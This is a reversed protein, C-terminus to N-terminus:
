KMLVMKKVETHSSTVIRYLYVGSGLASANFSIDYYHGAEAMGDFLRAVEQGLLNYVILTAHEAHEVSFKIMTSPNFPNPYSQLLQFKKPAVDGSVSLVVNVTIPQSYSVAGNLDVQRVRYIYNGSTVMNDVWSYHHQSLSTGAGAILGSVTQFVTSDQRHREVYFGYNNTESVTTWELKVGSTTTTATLSALQIPLAANTGLTFQGLTSVGSYSVTTDSLSDAFAVESSWTSDSTGPRQYLSYLTASASGDNTFSPPVTFTLSFDLSSAKGLTKKLRATQPKTRSSLPGSNFVDIVWYRDSLITSSGVPLSDPPTMIQTETIDVAGPFSTITTLQFTGLSLTGSTFSAASTSSGTGLPVTSIVWAPADQLTGNNGNATADYAVGGGGEDFRWYGLLGTENGHLRLHMSERIQQQTRAVNWVRVEDIQGQLPNAADQSYGIRIHTNWNFDSAAKTGSAMLIGDVYLREGGVSSGFVHAVHHWHGDAYNTGSTQLLETAYIRTHIDGGSLYIHRDHGGTGPDYVAFLGGAPNTTKFWLEHTIETEPEALPVDVCQTTGNLSLAKGPGVNAACTGRLTVSMTGKNPDNSTITLSGTLAGVTSPSFTIVLNKAKGPGLVFPSTDTSFTSGAVSLNSVRLSDNGADSIVLPRRMSEGPAVPGLDIVTDSVLIEPVSNVHLFGSVTVSSNDPDNNAIIIDKVHDGAMLVHSDFKVAINASDGPAITGSNPTVTLWNGGCFVVANYMFQEGATYNGEEPLSSIYVRNENAVLVTTNDSSSAIVTGTPIEVSTWAGGSPTATEGADTTFPPSLNKLLPHGPLVFNMQSETNAWYYSASASLGVLPALSDVQPQTESYNNNNFTGASVYLGAGENVYQAVAHADSVSFTGYAPNWNDSVIPIIDM